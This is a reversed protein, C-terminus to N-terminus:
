SILVQLRKYYKPGTMPCVILDNFEIETLKLSSAIYQSKSAKMIRDHENPIKVKTILKEGIYIYGKQHKSRGKKLVPNIKTLISSRIKKEEFDM